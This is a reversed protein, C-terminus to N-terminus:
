EGGKQADKGLVNIITGDKDKMIYVGPVHALLSLKEEIIENM